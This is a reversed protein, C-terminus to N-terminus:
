QRSTIPSQRLAAIGAAVILAMGATQASTLAEGWLIWTWVATVPLIMYELVAVTAAPAIQYARIMMGVGFVSLVAQVAVWFGFAPTPWVPGRLVFGEAGAPVALPWAWLAAMGALGFVLLCAFFGALLTGAEEGACWRM